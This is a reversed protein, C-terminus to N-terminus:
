NIKDRNRNEGRNASGFMEGLHFLEPNCFLIPELSKEFQFVTDRRVVRKRADKRSEFWRGKPFAENIPYLCDVRRSRTFDHGNVAFCRTTRM